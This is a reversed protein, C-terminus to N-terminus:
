RRLFIKTHPCSNSGILIYMRHVSKIFLKHNVTPNFWTSVYQLRFSYITPSILGTGIIDMYSLQTHTNRHNPHVSGNDLAKGNNEFGSLSAYTWFEVKILFWFNQSSFCTYQIGTSMEDACVISHKQQDLLEQHDWIYRSFPPQRTWKWGGSAPNWCQSRCEMVTDSHHEQQGQVCCLHSM